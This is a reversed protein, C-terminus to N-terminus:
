KEFFYTCVKQYFVSTAGIGKQIEKTKEAVKEIPVLLESLSICEQAKATFAEPIGNNFVTATAVLGPITPGIYMLPGSDNEPQKITKRSLM